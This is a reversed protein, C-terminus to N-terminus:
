IRLPVTWGFALPSLPTFFTLRCCATGRIPICEFLSPSLLYGHLLFERDELLNEAESYAESEVEARAEISCPWDTTRATRVCVALMDMLLLPLFLLILVTRLNKM